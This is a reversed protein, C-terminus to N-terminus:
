AGAGPGSPQSPGRGVREIVEIVPAFQREYHWEAAIRARAAEGMARVGERDAALRRVAGAIADARRPDVAVGYGPEVVLSRWEPRDTVILPLGAAMYDFAKNSAGAMNALNIDGGETPVLALGVDAAAAQAMAEDRGVIGRYDVLSGMAGALSQLRRVHGTGSPTEYGVIRLVAAGDLSVLAPMLTEPLRDPTISGHYYLVLPGSRDRHTPVPLEALRPVNWVTHVRAPDLGLGATVVAARAANPLVVAAARRAVSQRRAAFWPRLAGAAPSDHEHYVIAAGALRAALRAPSAALPDSAYIVAPRQTLALRAAALHYRLYDAPRIVHSPRTAIARVTVGPHVPVPTDLGAIPAALLTAQWGRDALCFAANMIPPYAGPETVQLFLITRGSM